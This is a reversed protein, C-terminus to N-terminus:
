SWKQHCTFTPPNGGLRVRLFETADSPSELAGQRDLRRRLIDQAASLITDETQPGPLTYHGLIDRTFAM